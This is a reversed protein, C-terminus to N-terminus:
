PTPEKASPRWGVILALETRLRPPIKHGDLLDLATAHLITGLPTAASTLYAPLADVIARTLEKDTWRNEDTM